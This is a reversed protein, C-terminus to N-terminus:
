TVKPTSGMYEAISVDSITYIYLLRNGSSHLGSGTIFVNFSQGYSKTISNEKNGVRIQGAGYPNQCFHLLTYLQAIDKNTAHRVLPVLVALYWQGQVSGM